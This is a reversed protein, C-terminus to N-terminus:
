IENKWKKEEKINKKGGRCACATRKEENGEKLRQVINEKEESENQVHGERMNKIEM